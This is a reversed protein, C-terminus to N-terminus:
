IHKLLFDKYTKKFGNKLSTKYKWGYKKALNSDLLKRKMGDPKTKDYKIKLKLGLENMIFKAYWKIQYDKESGINIFQEKFKKNMFYLVADAFDDVYLLERYSKGSGWVTIFKKNFNKADYIKKILASFFHSSQLNYNDGPGYMNPPMLCKYDLGYDNNYNNCMM